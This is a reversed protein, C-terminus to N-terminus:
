ANIEVAYLLWPPSAPPSHTPSPPQPHTAPLRHAHSPSTHSARHPPLPHLHAPCTHAHPRVEQPRRVSVRRARPPPPPPPLTLSCYLSPPRSRPSPASTTQPPAERLDTHSRSSSRALSLAHYRTHLHSAPAGGGSFFAAGEHEAGLLGGPSLPPIFSGLDFPPPRPAPRPSPPATPQPSHRPRPTGRLEEPPQMTSLLMQHPFAAGATWAHQASGLAVEGELPVNYASSQPLANPPRRQLSHSLAPGQLPALHLPHSHRRHQSPSAQLQRIPTDGAAPAEERRERKILVPPSTGQRAPREGPNLAGRLLVKYGCGDCHGHSSLQWCGCLGAM